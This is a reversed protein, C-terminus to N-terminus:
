CVCFESRSVTRLAGDTVENFGLMRKRLGYFLMLSILIDALAAVGAWVATAKNFSYPMEAEAEM